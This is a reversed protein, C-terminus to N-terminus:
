ALFTGARLKKVITAPIGKGNADAATGNVELGQGKAGALTGVRAPRRRGPRNMFDATTRWFILRTATLQGGSPQFRMM